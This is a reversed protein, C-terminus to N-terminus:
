IFAIVGLMIGFPLIGFRFDQVKNKVWSLWAAFYIVFGFKLFEVPQFSFAGIQIWREAGGHSWGLSPIFVAATLLISGLFILFFIIILFFKDVKKERM